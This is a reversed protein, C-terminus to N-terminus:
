VRLFIKNRYLHLLFLWEIAVTGIPVVVPGFSGSYRVVGGLFFRAIDDFPIIRSAIYITIANVGIVVFFFAWARLRLVDIITYFFALLLLSWGGAILVYTSTWLIKIIPFERAWLTGLGLCALGGVALGLAKIWRGQGSLLWHGALVGLLATAVAPITSLLGENDGFGYYGKNIKGPLYHRDLYGALNKEISLDGATSEPSPVYMLIAWYGVLIAVFLIAQTRAKTLLFIVAAIGYCIAIRQLVGTVRLNAFDFRLLNNYILGLLFLLVVRRALRGFAGAKPQDGSQYKRLSFPLVVGVTFLFLPFILDYFRFGEWAVHEFREAFTKSEPTGWWKALAKAVDDGGVIWFMDFGRLADISTLREPRSQEPKEPGDSPITSMMKGM